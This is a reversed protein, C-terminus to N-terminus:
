APTEGAEAPRRMNDLTMGTLRRFMVIFASASAYGLDRAISEVKEGAALRPLAKVICLRQRWQSLPMGLAQQCADQQDTGM